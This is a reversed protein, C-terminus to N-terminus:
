RKILTRTRPNTPKTPKPKRSSIALNLFLSIPSSSLSLPRLVHPLRTIQFLKPISSHHTYLMPFSSSYSSLSSPTAPYSKFTAMTPPEFRVTHLSMSAVYNQLRFWSVITSDDFGGLLYHYYEYSGQILSVAGGSVGSCPIGLHVDKLLSTGKRITNGRTNNDTVFLKISNVIRLLPRDLPLGLRIHLSKRVEVQKMEMEGYSVDYIVTIPPLFGPPVFHCPQLQPHQTLLNPLIKNRLSYLQDVIAPIILKFIASALSLDKAAYCIVELKHDVVLIKTEESAPYYEAIPAAPKSSSKSRNSLISVRIRDANEELSAYSTTDGAKSCLYSCALKKIGSEQAIASSIEKSIDLDTGHLVVPREGASPENAELIFTTNPGMLNSVVNETARIYMKEVDKPNNAPYYVPLKIPIECQLLCGKEWVYKEPQEEYVVSGVREINRSNGGRLVFFQSEESNNLDVVAGVLSHDKFDNGAVDSYLLKRLKAAADIAERATNEINLDSRAILAGVVEFGKPVLIRIDDSEKSFDPSNPFHICRITSIITNSPFFQSGILWQIQPIKAENDHHNLKPIVLRRCLIRISTKEM